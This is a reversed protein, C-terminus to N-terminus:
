KKTCNCLPDHVVSLSPLNDYFVYWTHGDFEGKYVACSSVMLGKTDYLYMTKRSAKETAKEVLDNISQSSSTGYCYGNNSTNSCCSLILIAFLIFVIKKMVLEEKLPKM